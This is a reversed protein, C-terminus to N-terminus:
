QGLRLIKKAFPTEKRRVKWEGVFSKVVEPPVRAERAVRAALFALHLPVPLHHHDQGSDADAEGDGPQRELDEEDDGLVVVDKLDPEFGTRNGIDM